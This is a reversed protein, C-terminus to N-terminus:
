SEGGPDSSDAAKPPSSPRGMMRSIKRKGEEAAFKIAEYIQGSLAGALSFWLCRAVLRAGGDEIGEIADLVPLPLVGFFAGSVLPHLRLTLDYWSAEVTEPVAARRASSRVKRWGRAEAIRKSVKGLHYIAIAVAVFTWLQRLAEWIWDPM